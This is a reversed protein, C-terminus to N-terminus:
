AGGHEKAYRAFTAAHMDSRASAKEQRDKVAQCLGDATGNTCGQETASWSVVPKKTISDTVTVSVQVTVDLHQLMGM